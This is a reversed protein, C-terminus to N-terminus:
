LTIIPTYIYNTSLPSYFFSAAIMINNIYIKIKTQENTRENARKLRM